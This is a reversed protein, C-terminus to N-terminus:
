SPNNTPVPKLSKPSGACRSARLPSAIPTTCYATSSPMPSPPTVSEGMGTSSPCSHPSSPPTGSPAITWSKWHDERGYPELPQLAWDDLVLVEIKALAMLRRKHVGEGRAIRLEELLRPLRAYLASHGLRCAKQALACALWTKGVGTPGAILIPQGREIWQGHGLSAILRADLGRSTRTDLDELCAQAYKLRAKALLRTLRRGDRHAAEREVLLAVRDEFALTSSSPLTVQEEFAAAMGELNLARLQTLTQQVIM